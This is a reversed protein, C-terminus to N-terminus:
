GREMIVDHDIPLYHMPEGIRTKLGMRTSTSNFKYRTAEGLDISYHMALLDLTILVDAIEKALSLMTTRSGPLELRERELKKIVNCLEGVEGALELGRFSATILNEPDFEKNREVNAQRLDEFKLNM